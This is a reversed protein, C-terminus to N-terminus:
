IQQNNEHLIENSIKTSHNIGLKNESKALIITNHNYKKSLRYRFRKSSLLIFCGLSAM